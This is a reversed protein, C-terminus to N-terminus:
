VALYSVACLWLTFLLSHSLSTVGNTWEQNLLTINKQNCLDTSCVRYCSPNPDTNCGESPLLNKPYCSREFSTLQVYDPNYVAKTLCANNVFDCSINQTRPEKFPETVCELNTTGDGAYQYSCSVCRVAQATSSFLCATVSFVFFVTTSGAM